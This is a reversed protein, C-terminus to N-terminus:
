SPFLVAYSQMSNNLSTSLRRAISKGLMRAGFRYLAFAEGIVEAEREDFLKRPRGMNEGIAPERKTEAYSKWIQQVRRRSIEMDLAIQKTTVGTQKQRIIWHIKRQDLKM